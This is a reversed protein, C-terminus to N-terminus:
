NAAHFVGQKRCYEVFVADCAEACRARDVVLPMTPWAWTFGGENAANSEEFLRDTVQVMKLADM